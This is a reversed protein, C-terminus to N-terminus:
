SMSGSFPNQITLRARVLLGDQLDEAYLTTADHELAHAVVLADWHSFSYSGRLDQALRVISPTLARVSHHDLLLEVWRLVDHRPRRLRRELVWASENVVQVSVIPGEDLLALAVAQKASGEDLAYLLASTDIATQIM